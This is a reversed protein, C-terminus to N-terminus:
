RAEESRHRAEPDVQCGSECSEPCQYACPEVHIHIQSDPLRHKIAVVIEDGLDHAEAVSMRDDVALHFDIFRNPGAKRTRLRHFSRVHPWGQKVFDAIWDVDKDPLSVDLLDRAAQKTLDYAAKMIMLAVVIAVAPDIWVLNAEPWIAGGVWIVLLGFMVGLSTYVDTRLHWGDAQLAVSDTERGVKFLRQSVATNVVASALMVAVGWGPMEIEGPDILKRVATYIIWVAAIFILVAEITGSVNEFKGHGYPHREDAAESSKRVAFLAILAAVLDVASHIAESLVAVSGILIGVAIKLLILAANSCVSLLAVGTKRGGDRPIRDVRIEGAARGIAEGQGVPGGHGPVDDSLGKGAVKGDVGEKIDVMLAELCSFLGVPYRMDRLAQTQQETV